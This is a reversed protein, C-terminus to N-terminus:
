VNGGIRSIGYRAVIGKQTDIVKKLTYDPPVSPRNSGNEMILVLEGDEDLEPVKDVWLVMGEKPKFSRDFCTIYRDYNPLIGAAVEEPTGSTSSVTVKKEVPKEYGTVTVYGDLKEVLESFWVSQRQRMSSRM